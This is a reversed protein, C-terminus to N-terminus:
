IKAVLRAIHHQYKYEESTNANESQLVMHQDNPYNLFPSVVPELMEQETVKPFEM